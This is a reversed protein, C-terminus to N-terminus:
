RCASPLGAGRLAAQLATAAGATQGAAVMGDCMSAATKLYGDNPPPANAANQHLAACCAKLSAAPKGGGGSKTTTPKSDDESLPEEEVVLEAAPAPAAPAPAAPLPPPAEDEKCGVLALPLALALLLLSARTTAGETGLRIADTSLRKM